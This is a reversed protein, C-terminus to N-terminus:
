WIRFITVCDNNKNKLNYDQGIFCEGTASTGPITRIDGTTPDGTDGTKDLFYAEMPTLIGEFNRNDATGGCLIIWVGSRGELGSSVTFCGGVRSVPLGNVLELNLLEAAALHQWFRKADEPSVIEGTGSGNTISDRIMQRARSFDGPLAGYSDVFTQTALRIAGVQDLVARLRATQILQLGKLAFGAILGIIVVAIAVEILSFGRNKLGGSRNKM